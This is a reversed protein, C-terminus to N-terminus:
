KGAELKAVREQLQKILGSIGSNSIVSAFQSRYNEVLWVGGVNVDFIKWEGNKNLLRYDLKIPDKSTSVLQTRVITLRPDESGRSKLLKVQYNSAEKLAGSYVATLLRRFDTMIATREEPTAKRWAPGVAMRTMTEFDSYPLINKDVLQNVHTPDAKALEPDKRIENLVETSVAEVLEQPPLKADAALAGSHIVGAVALSIVFKFLVKM